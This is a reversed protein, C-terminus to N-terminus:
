SFQKGYCPHTKNQHYHGSKYEGLCLWCFEYKCSSCKFHNCGGNKEIYANCKGCTKTNILRWKEYLDDASGNEKKWEQYKECNSNSHWDCKCDSCYAYNCKESPCRVMTTFPSRIVAVGCGPKLCWATLPDCKLHSDLIFNQYKEFEVKNVIRQIEKYTINHQCQHPEIIPCRIETVLGDHILSCLYQNMCTQCLFHRCEDLIIIGQLSYEGFCVKCEYQKEEQIDMGQNERNNNSNISSSSSNIDENPVLMYNHEAISLIKGAQEEQMLYRCIEERDIMAQFLMMNRKEEADLQELRKVHDVINDDEMEIEKDKEMEIETNINEKTQNLDNIKIISTSKKPIDEKNEEEEEQQEEKSVLNKSKILISNPFFQIPSSSWSSNSSSVNNIFPSNSTKNNQKNSDDKLLYNFARELNNDFIMLANISTDESFGMQILTSIPCSSYSSSSSNTSPDKNQHNENFDEITIIEEKSNKVKKEKKQKEKELMVYGETELKNESEDKSKNESDPINGSCLLTISEDLNFNTYQLAQRAQYISFGLDILVAIHIDDSEMRDQESSYYSLHSIPIIRKDIEISSM